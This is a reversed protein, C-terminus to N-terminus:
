RRRAVSSLLCTQLKLVLVVFYRFLFPCDITGLPLMELILFISYLPSLRQITKNVHALRLHELSPSPPTCLLSFPGAVSSYPRLLSVASITTSLFGGLPYM